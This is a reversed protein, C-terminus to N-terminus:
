EKEKALSLSLISGGSAGYPSLSLYRVTTVAVFFSWRLKKQSMPRRDACPTGSLACFFVHNGGNRGLSSHHKERKESFHPQPTHKAKVNAKRNVVEGTMACIQTRKKIQM